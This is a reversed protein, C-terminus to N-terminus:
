GLRSAWGNIASQIAFCNVGKREQIIRTAHLRCTLSDGPAYIGIHSPHAFAWAVHLIVTYNVM